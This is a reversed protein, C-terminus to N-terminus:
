WDAGPMEASNPVDRRKARGRWTTATRTIPTEAAKPQKHPAAGTPSAEGVEEPPAGSDGNFTAQLLLLM